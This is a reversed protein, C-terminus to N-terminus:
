DRPPYSEAVAKRIDRAAREVTASSLDAWADPGASYERMAEREYKTYDGNDHHIELIVRATFKPM